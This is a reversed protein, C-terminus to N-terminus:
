LPIALVASFHSGNRRTILYLFTFMHRPPKERESRGHKLQRSRALCREKTHAPAASSTRESACLGPIASLTIIRTHLTQLGSAEPSPKPAIQRGALPWSIFRERNLAMNEDRNTAPYISEAVSINVTPM